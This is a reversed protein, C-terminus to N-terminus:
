LSSLINRSVIGDEPTVHFEDDRCNDTSRCCRWLKNFISTLGVKRHHIPSEQYEKQSVV